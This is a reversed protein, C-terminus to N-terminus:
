AAVLGEKASEKIATVLKDLEAHIDERPRLYEGVVIPNIVMGFSRGDDFSWRVTLPYYAREHTGFDLANRVTRYEVPEHRPDYESSLTKLTIGHTRCNQRLVELITLFKM